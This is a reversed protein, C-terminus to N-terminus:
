KNSKFLCLEFMSALTLPISVALREKGYYEFIAVSHAAGFEVVHDIVEKFACVNSSHDHHSSHPNEQLNEMVIIPQSFNCNSMMFDECWEAMRMFNSLCIYDRLLLTCKSALDKMDHQHAMELIALINDQHILETNFIGYCYEIICRLASVDTNPQAYFVQNRVDTFISCNGSHNLLSEFFLSNSALITKHVQIFEKGNVCIAFDHGSLPDELLLEIANTPIVHKREKWIEMDTPKRNYFQFIYKEIRPNYHLDFEQEYVNRKIFSLCYDRVLKLPSSNTYPHLLACSPKQDEMMASGDEMRQTPSSINSAIRSNSLTVSNVAHDVKGTSFCQDIKALYGDIMELTTIVNSVRLTSKVNELAQQKIEVLDGHAEQLCLLYRLSSQLDRDFVVSHGYVYCVINQMCVQEDVSLSKVFEQCSLVHYLGPTFLRLYPMFAMINSDPLLLDRENLKINPYHFEKSPPNEVKQPQQSLASAITPSSNPSSSNRTTSSHDSNAISSHASSHLRPSNVLVLSPVNAKKAVASHRLTSSSSNKM